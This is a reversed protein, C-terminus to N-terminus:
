YYGLDGDRHFFHSNGLQCNIQFFFTPNTGCVVIGCKWSTDGSSRGEVFIEHILTANGQSLFETAFADIDVQSWGDACQTALGSATTTPFPKTCIGDQLSNGARLGDLAYLLLTDNRGDLMQNCVLLLHIPHIINKHWPDARIDVVPGQVLQVQPRESFAYTRSNSSDHRYTKFVEGHIM